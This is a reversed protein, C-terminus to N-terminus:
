HFCIKQTRREIVERTVEWGPRWLIM